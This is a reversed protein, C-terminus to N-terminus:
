SVPYFNQSVNDYSSDSDLWYGMRLNLYRQQMELGNQDVHFYDTNQIEFSQFNVTVEKGTDTVPITELNVDWEVLPSDFTMRAKVVATENEANRYVLTIQSVLDSRQVFTNTLTSYRFTENMAPRFITAGSRSGEFGQYALYYRLDFAFTFTNMYKKKQLM